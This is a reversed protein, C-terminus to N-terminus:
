GRGEWGKRDAAKMEEHKERRGGTRQRGGKWRKVKKSQIQGFAHEVLQDDSDPPGEGLWSVGSGEDPVLLPPDNADNAAPSDPVQDLQVHRRGWCDHSVDPVSHVRAQSPAQKQRM